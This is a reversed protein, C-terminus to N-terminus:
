IEAMCEENSIQSSGDAAVINDSRLHEKDEKIM